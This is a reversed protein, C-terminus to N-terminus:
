KICSKILVYGKASAASILVSSLSMLLQTTIIFVYIFRWCSLYHLLGAPPKKTEATKIFYKSLLHHNKLKKPKYFCCILLKPSPYVM